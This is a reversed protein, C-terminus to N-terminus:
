DLKPTIDNFLVVITPNFGLFDNEEKNFIHNGFMVTNKMDVWGQGGRGIGNCKSFDMVPSDGHPDILYIMHKDGLKHYGGICAVNGGTGILGLIKSSKNNYHNQLLTAINEMANLDNIMLMDFNANTFGSKIATDVFYPAIQSLDAMSIEGSDYDFIIEPDQTFARLEFALTWVDNNIGIQSLLTQLSRWGCGWEKDMNEDMM